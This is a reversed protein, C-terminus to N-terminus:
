MILSRGASTASRVTGPWQSPSRIMPLSPADAIPVKTSRAVRYTISSCRGCSWLASRTRIAQLFGEGRQRRMQDTGQGPILARLHARMVAEGGGGSDRDVETIGATWPLSSGVLVGVTQQALVERLSGVKADVATLM